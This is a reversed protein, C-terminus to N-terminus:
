SNSEDRVLPSRVFLPKLVNMHFGVLLGDLAPMAHGPNMLSEAGGLESKGEWTYDKAEHDLIPGSAGAMTDRDWVVLSLFPLALNFEKRELPSKRCSGCM